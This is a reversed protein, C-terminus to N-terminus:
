AVDEKCNISDLAVNLARARAQAMEILELSQERRTAGHMASAAELLTEIVLAETQLVDRSLPGRTEDTDKM